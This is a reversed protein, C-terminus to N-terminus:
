DLRKEVHMKVANKMVKLPSEIALFQRLRSLARKFCYCCQYYFCLTLLYRM